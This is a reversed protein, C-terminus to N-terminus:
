PANTGGRAWEGILIQEGRESRKYLNGTINGRQCTTKFQLVFSPKYTTLLLKVCFAFHYQLKTCRDLSFNILKGPNARKIPSCRVMARSGPPSRIFFLYHTTLM